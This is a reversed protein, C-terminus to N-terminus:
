DLEVSWVTLAGGSGRALVSLVSLVGLSAERIGFINFGGRSLRSVVNPGRRTHISELGLKIDGACDVMEPCGPILEQVESDSGHRRHKSLRLSVLYGLAIDFRM